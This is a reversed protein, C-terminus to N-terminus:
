INGTSWALLLGGIIVLVFGIIRQKIFGIDGLFIRIIIFQKSVFTFLLGLGFIICSVLVIPNNMLISFESM